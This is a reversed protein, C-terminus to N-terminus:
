YELVLSYGVALLAYIMGLALGNLLQQSLM